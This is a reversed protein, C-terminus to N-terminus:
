KPFLRNCRNYDKHEHKDQFGHKKSFIYSQNIGHPSPYKQLNNRCYTEIINNDLQVSDEIALFNSFIPQIQM